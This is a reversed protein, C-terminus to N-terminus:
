YYERRYARSHRRGYIGIKEAFLRAIKAGGQSIDVYGITSLIGPIDTNDLRVPIIYERGRNKLARELAASREHNAWQKDRYSKSLILICYRSRRSYVESLYTSLERGWLNAQEDGDYFVTLGEAKLDAALSDAHPKDESAYSICVDFEFQNWHWKECKQIVIDLENEDYILPSFNHYHEFRQNRKYLLDLYAPTMYLVFVVTPVNKRITLITEELEEVSPRYSGSYFHKFSLFVTNVTGNVCYKRVDELSDLNMITQVSRNYPLHSMLWDPGGEGCCATTGPFVAVDLSIRKRQGIM